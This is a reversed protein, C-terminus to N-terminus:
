TTCASGRPSDSLVLGVVEELSEHRSDLCRKRQIFSHASPSDQNCVYLVLKPGLSRVEAYVIRVLMGYSERIVDHALGKWLILLRKGGEELRLCSM